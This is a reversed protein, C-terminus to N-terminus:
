KHLMDDDDDDDSSESRMKNSNRVFASNCYIDNFDEPFQTICMPCNPAADTTAESPSTEVLTPLISVPMNGDIGDPFDLDQDVDVFNVLHSMNSESQHLSADDAQEDVKGLSLGETTVVERVGSATVTPGEAIPHTFADTPEATVVETPHATPLPETFSESLTTEFELVPRTTSVHEAAPVPLISYTEEDGDTDTPFTPPPMQPLEPADIAFDPLSPVSCASPITFDKTIELHQLSFVLPHHFKVTLHRFIQDQVKSFTRSPLSTPCRAKQNSSSSLRLSNKKRKPHQVDDFSTFPSKSLTPLQLDRRLSSKKRRSSAAM